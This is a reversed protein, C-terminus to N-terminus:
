GGSSGSRRTEDDAATARPCAGEIMARLRGPDLRALSACDEGEPLVLRTCRTWRGLQGRIEGAVREGAEDPDTVILIHSWTGLKSAHGPVFESGYLGAFPLGAVREVAMGDFGGEVVVLLRRAVVVPWREEGFIAAKDAGEETAPELYKRRARGFARATYSVLRGNSDRVPIVIRGSLRGDVAYGLGWREAQADPVGRERLYVSAPSPWDSVPAVVVGPPLAFGRARTERVEVESRLAAHRPSATATSDLWAQAEKVDEIGLVGMVLSVLSRGSFKCSWCKFGGDEAHIRFSPSRDDHAPHPCKLEYWRGKRAYTLGLRDLVSSVDARM